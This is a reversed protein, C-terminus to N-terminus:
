PKIEPARVPTITVNHHNDRAVSVRAVSEIFALFSDPDSADFTGSVTRAGLSADDIRLQVRNYRNFDAVVQALPTDDFVLRGRTWALERESDVKRVSTTSGAQDVTLQQNAVLVAALEPEHRLDEPHSVSVAVKGEAVTVVVDQTEHEVAFSTGVARAVTGNAYVLFPRQPDKAVRFLARGRELEVIRESDRLKVRMRTQPDVQLVSGDALAVERREGRETEITQGSLSLWLSMGLVLLASAAMGAALWPTRRWVSRTDAEPAPQAPVVANCFEVVTEDAVAGETDIRTWREFHALADHVQVVHLMESVHIPSECLWKVFSERRQRPMHVSQMETWWEAAEMGARARRENTDM